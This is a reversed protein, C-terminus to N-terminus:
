THKSIKKRHSEIVTVIDSFSIKVSERPVGIPMIYIPTEDKSCGLIRAVEDDNFAGIAVTGYGLATAILYINQGMHGVDMPVYRVEGRKGYYRTTRKYIATIIIDVPAEKIYVQNLAARALESRVDGLKVLNLTHAYSDYRYIGASIFNTNSIVSREGIAVYVELPYTAGASPSTRFLNVPDSVGYASWLILALHEIDIPDSKFSRYSRRLLIAEEVSMVTIRRPYPLFIREELGM